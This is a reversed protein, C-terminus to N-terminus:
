ARSVSVPSRWDQYAFFFSQFARPFASRSSSIFSRPCAYRSPGAPVRGARSTPVELVHLNTTCLILVTAYVKTCYPPNIKPKLFSTYITTRLTPFESQTKKLSSENKALFLAFSCNAWFFLRNGLKSMNPSCTVQEWENKTLLRVLAWM